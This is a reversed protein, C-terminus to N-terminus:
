SPWCWFGLILYARSVMHTVDANVRRRNLQRRLFASSWIVFLIGLVVFIVVSLLQGLNLSAEGFSLLPTQMLKTM